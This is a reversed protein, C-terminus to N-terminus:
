PAQAGSTPDIALRAWRARLATMPVGQNYARSKDRDYNPDGAQHLAVLNWEADVCPAGSL